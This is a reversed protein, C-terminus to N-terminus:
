TFLLRIGLLTILILILYRFRQSSLRNGLRVGLFFGLLTGPAAAVIYHWVLPTVNGSAFHAAILFYGVAMFYVQLNCKFQLLPWRSASAYMVVPPGGTNYAGTLVGSLFGVIYTWRRGQPLPMSFGILEYIGYVVLLIGLIHTVLTPDTQKLWLIGFPIGLVAALFLPIIARPDATRFFRIAYITSTTTAVVALVPSAVQIGLVPALLPMAVLALGFGATGQVLAAFFVIIIVLWPM